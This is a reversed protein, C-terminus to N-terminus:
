LFLRSKINKFIFTRYSSSHNIQEEPTKKKINKEILYSEYRKGLELNTNYIETVRRRYKKPVHCKNLDPKELFEHEIALLRGLTMLSKVQEVEEPGLSSASAKLTNDFSVEGIIKEIENPKSTKNILCKTFKYSNLLENADKTFYIQGNISFLARENLAWTNSFFLLFILSCIRM